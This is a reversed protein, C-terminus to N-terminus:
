DTTYFIDVYIVGATMTAAETYVVIQGDDTSTGTVYDTATGVIYGKGEAWVPVLATQLGTAGTLIFEDTNYRTGVQVTLSSQATGATVKVALIKAGKPLSGGFYLTSGAAESADATYYDHRVKVRGDIVGQTLKNSLGGSDIATQNVGKVTQVTAM